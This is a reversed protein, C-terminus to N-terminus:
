NLAAQAQTTETKAESWLTSLVERTNVGFFLKERGVSDPELKDVYTKVKPFQTAFAELKPTQCQALSGADNSQVECNWFDLASVHANLAFELPQTIKKNNNSLSKYKELALKADSVQSLYDTINIGLEVRSDIKQFAAVAEKAEPSAATSCSSLTLSLCAIFILFRNKQLFTQKPM